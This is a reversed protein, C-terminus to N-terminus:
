YPEDDPRKRRDRPRRGGTSPRGRRPKLAPTYPIVTTSSVVPLSLVPAAYLLDDLYRLEAYFEAQRRHLERIENSWQFRERPLVPYARACYRDVLEKIRQKVKDPDPSGDTWLGKNEQTHAFHEGDAVLLLASLPSVNVNANPTAHTEPTTM